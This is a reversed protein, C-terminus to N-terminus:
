THNETIYHEIILHLYRAAYRDVFQIALEHSSEDATDSIVRVVALPVGFDHCVQAVAAGEMEVCLVTPLRDRIAEKVQTSGIFQDGSAIDGSYLGPRGMGNERLQQLFGAAQRLMGASADFVRKSLAADTEFFQKGTLPVEYRPMLPRADMDHQILREAVVIDGVSLCASVGGAVGTFVLENVGFLEILTTATTAAAVKGWRSFVAVVPVGKLYGTYYKRNGHVQVEAQEMGAVIQEMEEPMAGMLGMKKM